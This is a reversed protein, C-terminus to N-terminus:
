ANADNDGSTTQGGILRIDEAACSMDLCTRLQGPAYRVLTSGDYLAAEHEEWPSWIHEHPKVERSEQLKTHGKAMRWVVYSIVGVVAAFIFVSIIGLVFSM